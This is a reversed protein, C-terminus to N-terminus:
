KNLIVFKNNSSDFIKILIFNQQPICLKIYFYLYILYYKLINDILFAMRNKAICFVHYNKPICLKIYFYLYILYYKLINDILFAM